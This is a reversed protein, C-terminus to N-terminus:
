DGRHKTREKYVDRKCKEAPTQYATFNGRIDNLEKFRKALDTCDNRMCICKARQYKKGLFPLVSTLPNNPVTSSPPM